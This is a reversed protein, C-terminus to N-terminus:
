GRSGSGYPIGWMSSEQYSEVDLVLFIDGGSIYIYYDCAAIIIRGGM